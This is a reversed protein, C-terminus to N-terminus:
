QMSSAATGIDTYCNLVNLMIDMIIDPGAVFHIWTWLSQIMLTTSILRKQIYKLHEAQVGSDDAMQAHM